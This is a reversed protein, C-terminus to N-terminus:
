LTILNRFFHQEFVIRKQKMYGIYMVFFYYFVLHYNLFLLFFISVSFVIKKYFFILEELKKGEIYSSRM